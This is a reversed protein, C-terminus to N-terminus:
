AAKSLPADNDNACETSIFNTLDRMGRMAQQARDPMLVKLARSAEIFYRADHVVRQAWRSHRIALSALAENQTRKAWAAGGDNSVWRAFAHTKNWEIGNPGNQTWAEPDVWAGCPTVKTIPYCRLVIGRVTGDVGDNDWWARWRHEDPSDDFEDGPYKRIKMEDRNENMSFLLNFNGM